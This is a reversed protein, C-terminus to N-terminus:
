DKITADIANDFIILMRRHAYTEQMLIAADRDDEPDLKQGSFKLCENVFLRAIQEPTKGDVRLGIVGDPFRDQYITAFHCALASKGIGGSGSLGVITCIRSNTNTLLQNELRKLEEERGTFNRIDLQPLVFLKGSSSGLSERRM